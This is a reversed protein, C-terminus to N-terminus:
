NDFHTECQFVLSFVVNQSDTNSAESSRPRLADMRDNRVSLYNMLM